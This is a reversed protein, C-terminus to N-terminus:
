RNPVSPPPPIVRPRPQRTPMGRGDLAHDLGRRLALVRNRWDAPIADLSGDAPLEGEYIVEDKPGMIKVKCADVVKWVELRGADTTYSALKDAVNIVRMPGRADGPLLTSDVLDHPFPRQPEPSEGLKLKVDMAKGARFGSLVIEDGPKSLRLLAALQSENTLMQDGLKWIVDFEQLGAAEAPGGKDISYIMFGFGQPLGPLHATISEEPKTVKLGLWARPAQPFRGPMPPIPTVVPPPVVVPSPALKIVTAEDAFSVVAGLMCFIVGSSKM